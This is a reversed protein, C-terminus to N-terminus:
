PERARPHVRHVLDDGEPETFPRMESDRRRNPGFSYVILMGGDDDDWMVWYPNNWPDLFYGKRDRRGGSDVEAPSPQGELYASDSGFRLYGSRTATFVRKHVRGKRLLKDQVATAMDEALLDLEAQTEAVREEDSGYLAADLFPPTVAGLAVVGPLLALWGAAPQRPSSRRLLADALLIVGLSAEAAEGALDIPYELEVAAVLVFFPALVLPPALEGLFRVRRGATGLLGGLGGYVLSFVAVLFRSDLPFGAFERRTLLNHLNAEQQYNTELFVEPPQFAVIRQGWSIEEGAVFFCFLALGLGAVRGAGGGRVARWGFVLAAALFAHTTTWEIWGDERMWDTWRGDDGSALVLTALFLDLMGLAILEGPRRRWGAAAHAAPVGLLGITTLVTVLM